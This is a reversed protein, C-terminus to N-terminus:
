MSRAFLSFPMAKLLYSMPTWPWWPVYARRNESEIARVLAKVGTDLDVRFPASEADRNIDTLIYGPM